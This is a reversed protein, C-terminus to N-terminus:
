QSPPNIPSLPQQLAKHIADEAMPAMIEYGAANPHVGDKSLDPRMGQQSDVVAPYYNLNVLHNQNCYDEIWANIPTIKQPPNLGKHWAYDFVPLISCLVPRIHNAVALEAMSQLNDEIAQVSTPGQNEAIDNTGGLIVVVTPHLRIVDQRFRVLMQQTTQGSTGRNIINSQGPFFNQWYETISDGYFVIRDEAYNRPGLLANAARYKTLYAWQDVQDQALVGLPTM